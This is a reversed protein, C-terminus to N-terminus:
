TCCDPRVHFIRRIDHNGCGNFKFIRRNGRGFLVHKTCSTARTHASFRTLGSVSGRLSPCHSLRTGLIRCATLASTRTSRTSSLSGSYCFGCTTILAHRRGGRFVGRISVFGHHGFSISIKTHLFRRILIPLSFHGSGFKKFSYNHVFRRLSGTIRTFAPYSGISRSAVNRVTATRRPVRVRPGLGHAGIVRRNSPVVGTVSVRIVHSGTASINAARLSFFVVPHGLGM